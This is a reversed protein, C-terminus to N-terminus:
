GDIQSAKIWSNHEKTYGYWKVLYQKYVGRGKTKLIKEIRYTDPKGVVQLEEKYFKGLLVNNKLDEIIYMIPYAKKNIGVVQFVEESWNQDFNKLFPGRIRSVRVYDMLNIVSKQVPQKAPQQQKQWLEMENHKTIEIPKLNFIGRHNTNNYTNIVDSLVNYWIKKRTHTFYRNLKERLTRNFREVLACKFKSYVSYHNIRRSKLLEQVSKNYFEKGQDTQIHHPSASALMSNIVKVMDVASKSKVPLARAVRSFVDICTLIYKFGNNVKAYPIMEMLDMQWLDNIGSTNYKRTPFKLKVPKHLTYSPQTSLWQKANDVHKSLKKVGGYGATHKVNYYIDVAHRSTHLLNTKKKMTETM